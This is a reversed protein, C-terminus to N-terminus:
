KRSMVKKATPTYTALTPPAAISHPRPPYLSTRWGSTHGVGSCWRWCWPPPWWRASTVTTPLTRRGGKAVHSFSFFFLVFFSLFLLFFIECTWQLRSTTLLQQRSSDIMPPIAPPLPPTTPPPAPPPWTRCSRGWRGGQLSFRGRLTRASLVGFVYFLLLINRGNESQM